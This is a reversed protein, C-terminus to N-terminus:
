RLNCATSRTGFRTRLSDYNGSRGVLEGGAGVGKERKRKEKGKGGRLTTSFSARRALSRM